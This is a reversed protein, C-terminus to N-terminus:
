ENTEFTYSLGGFTKVVGELRCRLPAIFSFNRPSGHQPGFQGFCLTILKLFDKIDNINVFLSLNTQKLHALKHFTRAHAFRVILQSLHNLSGGRPM